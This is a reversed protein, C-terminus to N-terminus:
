APPPTAPPRAPPSEAARSPRAPIWTRGPTGARFAFRAFQHGLKRRGLRNRRRRRLNRDTQRGIKQAASWIHAPGLPLQRGLGGPDAQRFGVPKGLKGEGTIGPHFADADPFPELGATLEPREPRGHLPPREIEAPHARFHAGLGGHLLRRQRGVLLGHEIRQLLRLVRDDGIRLLLVAM